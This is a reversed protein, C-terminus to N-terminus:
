KDEKNSKISKVNNCKYCAEFPKDCDGCDSNVEVLTPAPPIGPLDFEEKSQPRNKLVEKNLIFVRSQDLYGVDKEKDYHILKARTTNGQEDFDDKSIPALLGFVSTMALQVLDQNRKMDDTFVQELARVIVKADSILDKYQDENKKAEFEPINEFWLELEKNSHEIVDVLTCKAM